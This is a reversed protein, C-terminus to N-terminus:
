EVQTFESGTSSIVSQNEENLTYHMETGTSLTIAINDGSVKYNGEISFATTQDDSSNDWCSFSGNDEFKLYLKDGTSTISLFSTQHLWDPGYSSYTSAESSQESSQESKESSNEDSSIETNSDESYYDSNDSSGPSDVLAFFILLLFVAACIAAIVKLFSNGGNASKNSQPYRQYNTKTLKEHSFLRSSIINTFTFFTLNTKQTLSQSVVAQRIRIM